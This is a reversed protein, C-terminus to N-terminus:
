RRGFYKPNPRVHISRMPVVFRMVDIGAVLRRRVTPRASHRRAPDPRQHRRHLERPAPVEPRRPQHPRATLAPVGESIVPVYGVNLAHATLAAAITVHLDARRSRGG